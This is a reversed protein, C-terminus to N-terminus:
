ILLAAKQDSFQYKLFSGIKKSRSTMGYAAKNFNNLKNIKNGM